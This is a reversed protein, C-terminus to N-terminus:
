KAPAAAWPGLASLAAAETLRKSQALAKAPLWKPFAVERNVHRGSATHEQTVKSLRAPAFHSAARALAPWLRQHVLTIKGGVLRCVLIEPSDTVSELVRFIARGKPHSWWGGQIPEGAVAQALNPVPGKASVLVVGHKRVFALAQPVTM